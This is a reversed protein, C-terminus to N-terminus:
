ERARIHVTGDTAAHVQVPLIDPLLALATAARAGDFVGSVQLQSLAPDDLLIPQRHYRQLARVVEDLPTHEFQLRGESWRAEEAAVPGATPALGPDVRLRQGPRLRQEARGDGVRVGVDGKWLTVSSRAGERDVDFVTGYNRVQLPGADVQFRRWRSHVVDFRARGRMLVVQRTRLRWQVQLRTDADLLVRSGDPLTAQMRQAVASRHQRSHLVPDAYLAAAVAFLVVLPLVTRAPRRPPPRQLQRADPIPFREKLLARHRELLTDAQTLTDPRPRKGPPRSETTM